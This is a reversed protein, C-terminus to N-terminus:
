GTAGSAPDALAAVVMQLPAPVFAIFLGLSVGGSVTHRNLGWLAADHLPHGVRQLHPHDRVQGPIPDM